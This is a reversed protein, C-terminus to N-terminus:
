IGIDSYLPEDPEVYFDEEDYDKESFDLMYAASDSVDDHQSNPFRLLEDELDGCEGEIHWISRSMYYPIMGRIRTEKSTQNHKVPYISIYTGRKRMEEDMFPKIALLYITEEIGFKEPRYAKHIYFIHDILEMSNVKLRYAKRYRKNEKDVWEITIGSFDATEKKSAASDITVFCRTSKLRLAEWTIYQFWERKFEANAEDVPQNMMEPWFDAGLQKKKSELSVLPRDKPRTKNALDAEADTWVYKGPWNIKGMDEEAVPVMRVRLKNDTKSRTILDHIIGYETIYNGLYMITANPALGGYFEKLHGRVQDMAAKSRVTNKTEIDDLILEDPRNSGFTRGRVSEQTSHAEVRIKNTTIFDTIRKKTKDTQTRPENYLNGFDQIIKENNQLEQVVDFLFQEANGKDYSDVNMYKRQSYCIRRVMHAKALSTKTSERFEIWAVENVNGEVLDDIDQAMEWHFDAM